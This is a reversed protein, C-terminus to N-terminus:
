IPKIFIGLFGAYKAIEDDSNKFPRYALVAEEYNKAHPIANKFGVDDLYAYLTDYKRVESVVARFSDKRESVFEILDGPKIQRYEPKNKRGEVPKIGERIYSFYPESCEMLM